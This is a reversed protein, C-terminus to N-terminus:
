KINFQVIMMMCENHENKRFVKSRFSFFFIWYWNSYKLLILLLFSATFIQEFVNRLKPLIIGDDSIMLFNVSGCMNACWVYVCVRLPKSSAMEFEGDYQVLSCTVYIINVLNHWQCEVYYTSRIPVILFITNVRLWSRIYSFAVTSYTFDLRSKLLNTKKKQMAGNQKCKCTSTCLNILQFEVGHHVSKIYLMNSEHYIRNWTYRIALLIPRNFSM